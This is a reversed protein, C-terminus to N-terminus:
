VIFSDSETVRKESELLWAGGQPGSADLSVTTKRANSIVRITEGINKYDTECTIADAKGAQDDPPAPGNSGSRADTAASKPISSPKIELHPYPLNGEKMPILVIPFSLRQPPAEDKSYPIRFHGRRKGGILWTDQPASVDYFFDIDDIEPVGGVAQSSKKETPSTSDWIRTSKIELSAPIPENITAVVEGCIRAKQILKIDATYVATVSPVDVPIIISRSKSITEQSTDLPLL